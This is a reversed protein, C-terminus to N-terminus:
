KLINNICVQKLDAGYESLINVIAQSRNEDSSSAHAFEKEIRKVVDALTDPPSLSSEISKKTLKLSSSSSVTVIQTSSM